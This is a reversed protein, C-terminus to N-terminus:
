QLVQLERAMEQNEFALRELDDRKDFEQEELESQLQYLQNKLDSITHRQFASEEKTKSLQADKERLKTGAVSKYGQLTVINKNTQRIQEQLQHQKEEFSKTVGSLQNMFHAEMSATKAPLASNKSKLDRVIQATSKGHGSENHINRDLSDQSPLRNIGPFNSAVSCAPSNPASM